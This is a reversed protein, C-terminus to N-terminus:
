FADVTKRVSIDVLKKQDDFIYFAEVDTRFPWWYHAISEHIFSAGGIKTRPYDSGPEVRVAHVRVNVNRSRLWAVTTAQSSGLPTQQRLYTEVDTAPRHFVDFPNGALAVLLGGIACVAIGAAIAKKMM